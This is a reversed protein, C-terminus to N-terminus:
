VMLLHLSFVMIHIPLRLGAPLEGTDCPLNDLKMCNKEMQWTPTGLPYPPCNPNVAGHSRYVERTPPKWFNLSTYRSCGQLDIPLGWHSATKQKPILDHILVRYSLLPDIM